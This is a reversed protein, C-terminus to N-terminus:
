KKHLVSLIFVTTLKSGVYVTSTAVFSKGSITTGKCYFKGSHSNISAKAVYVVKESIISSKVVKKKRTNIFGNFAWKPKSYTNCIIKLPTSEQVV